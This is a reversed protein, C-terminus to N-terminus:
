QLDLSRHTSSFPLSYLSTVQSSSNNSTRQDWKSNSGSRNDRDYRRSDREMRGTKTFEFQSFFVKVENAIASASQPKHTHPLLFPTSYIKVAKGWGVSM